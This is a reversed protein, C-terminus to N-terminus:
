RERAPLPEQLLIARQLAPLTPQRPTTARPGRGRGATEKDESVPGRWRMKPEVGLAMEGGPGRPFDAEGSGPKRQLWGNQKVHEWKM